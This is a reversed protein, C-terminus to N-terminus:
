AEHNMNPRMALTVKTPMRDSNTGEPIRGWIVSPRPISSVWTPKRTPTYASADATHAIGSILMVKDTLRFVSKNIKSLPKATELMM